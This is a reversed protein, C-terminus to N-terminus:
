MLICVIYLFRVHDTVNIFNLLMKNNTKNIQARAEKVNKREKVTNKSESICFSVGSSSCQLDLVTCNKTTNDVPVQKQLFSTIADKYM